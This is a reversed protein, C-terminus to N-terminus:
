DSSPKRSSSVLPLSRECSLTSRSPSHMDPANKNQRETFSVENDELPTGEIPVLTNVPFSEPHESLRDDTRWDGRYGFCGRVEFGRPDVRSPGRGARGPGLYRRFLCQYGGCPGGRADGAERRVNAFHHSRPLVRSVHRPQPQLSVIWGREITSGSRAFAHGADHLSDVDAVSKRIRLM